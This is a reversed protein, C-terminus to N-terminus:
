LLVFVSKPRGKSELSDQTALKRLKNCHYLYRQKRDLNILIQRNNNNNLYSCNYKCHFEILLFLCLSENLFEFLDVKLNRKIVEFSLCDDNSSSLEVFIEVKDLFKEGSQGFAHNSEGFFEFFQHIISFFNVRLYSASEIRADEQTLIEHTAIMIQVRIRM